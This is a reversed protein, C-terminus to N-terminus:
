SSTSWDDMTFVVTHDQLKLKSEEAAEEPPTEEGVLPPQQSAVSQDSLVEALWRKFECEKYLEALEAKNPSQVLMNDNSVGHEVDLKITALQYSLKLQDENDQLKTSMTKSGRFGLGAIQDLNQYIDEISGLGQLM